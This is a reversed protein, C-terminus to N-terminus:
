KGWNEVYRKAAYTAGVADDYFAKAKIKAYIGDYQPHLMAKVESYAKASAPEDGNHTSIILEALRLYFLNTFIIQNTGDAIAEDYYKQLDDTYEFNNCHMEARLLHMSPGSIYNPKMDDPIVEFSKKYERMADFWNGTGEYIVGKNHHCRMLEAWDECMSMAYDILELAQIHHAPKMQVATTYLQQCCQFRSLKGCEEKFERLTKETVNGRILTSKLTNFKM